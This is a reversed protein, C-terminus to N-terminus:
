EYVEVESLYLITNKPNDDMIILTCLAEIRENCTMIILEGNLDPGKYSACLKMSELTKGATVGLDRLREGSNLWFIM